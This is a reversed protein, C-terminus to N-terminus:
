EEWLFHELRLQTLRAKAEESRTGGIAALKQYVAVAAKWDKAEELLHAANFGAKYFWFFEHQAEPRGGAEIVGYYTTLAATKNNLKELAKGKKFEAQNRWFPPAGPESALQEYFELARRYNEPDAAGMDYYIDGKGCLAERREAPKAEHKLVEDYLALAETNKGLRREITAEENRAAWKLDGGLKVVQDLLALAHDLATAGMSSMASRAAFFLAKEALPAEPKQQALLEFQTQANAFDGRRYYAEALKMRVEAASRSDPHRALFQSAAAIVTAENGSPASDEIWIQLYDARELAVPTPKAQRARALDNRAANLDPRQAHFALEALAVWAESRRVSQPFDAIFKRLTATAEAKGQAAQVLGEELLLEGQISRAGPDNSIKRYDTAFDNQRDLRLWCVAANFLAEGSRSSSEQALRDYISAAKELEGRRYQAEAILWAAREQLAPPANQAKIAEAAVIAPEWEGSALHLQALELDAEGLSPARVDGRGLEALLAIAKDRNGSRLESRAFYWQALAQRPQASDRMWRELEHTSPKREKQYLQDLKAFVAPLAPDEPHHDIFQELVDDGAEPTGTELHADAVTFLTAILLPHSVGEPRKLIVSLTEIARGPNGQALSLRGLLFRRESRETLQQPKTERLLHDAAVLEGKDLQLNAIGLKARTGWNPFRELSQLVAIAEDYRRLARLSEAEGLTAEARQGFKQDAAVERYFPLAEAWRGLAALAQARWFEAQSSKTLAPGSLRELAQEPKATRVFAEALKVTSIQRLDASPNQALLTQLREIAVEPVGADLPATANQLAGVTDARSFEGLSVLLALGILLHRQKM